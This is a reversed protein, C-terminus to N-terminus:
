TENKGGTLRNYMDQLEDRRYRDYLQLSSLGGNYDPHRAIKQAFWTKDKKMESTGLIGICTIRVM